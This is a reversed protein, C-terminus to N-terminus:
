VDPFLRRFRPGRLEGRTLAGAALADSGRFPGTLDVTVRVGVAGGRM